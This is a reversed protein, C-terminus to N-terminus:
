SKTECISYLGQYDGNIIVNVFENEPYWGKCVHKQVWTGIMQVIPSPYDYYGRPTLLAFEKDNYKDNDRCLLDAAKEITVKYPKKPWRASTNGRLKLSIGSKDKTYDGSDYLLAGDKDYKRLRGYVKSKNNITMGWCGEPPDVEDAIPMEEDVTNIIVVPLGLEFIEKYQEQDNAKVQSVCVGWLLWLLCYIQKM